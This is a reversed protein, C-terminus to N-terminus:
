QVREIVHGILGRAKEELAKLAEEPVEVVEHLPLRHDGVVLEDSPGRYIVQV